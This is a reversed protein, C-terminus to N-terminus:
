RRSQAALFADIRLGSQELRGGLATVERAFEQRLDSKLRRLKFGQSSQAIRQVAAEM